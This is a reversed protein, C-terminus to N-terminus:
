LLHFLKNSKQTKKEHSKWRQLIEPDLEEVENNVRGYFSNALMMSDLDEKM